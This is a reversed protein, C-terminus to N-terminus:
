RPINLVDISVRNVPPLRIQQDEDKRRKLEPEVSLSAVSWSDNSSECCFSADIVGDPSSPESVRKRRRCHSFSSCTPVGCMFEWHLHRKLDLRTLFHQFFCIPTVPNMKWELTSLVLLEM